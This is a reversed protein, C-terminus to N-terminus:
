QGIGLRRNTLGDMVLLVSWDLVVLMSYWEANWPVTYPRLIKWPGSLLEGRRIQTALTKCDYLNRCKTGFAQCAFPFDTPALLPKAFRRAVQFRCCSVRLLAEATAAMACIFAAPIPLLIGEVFALHNQPWLIMSLICAVLAFM